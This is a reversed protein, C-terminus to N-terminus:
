HGYTNHSLQRHIASDLVRQPPLSKTFPLYIVVGLLYFIHSPVQTLREMDCSEHCGKEQSPVRLTATAPWKVNGVARLEVKCWAMIRFDYVSYHHQSMAEVQQLAVRLPSFISVRQVMDHTFHAM